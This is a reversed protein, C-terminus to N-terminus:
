KVQRTGMRILKVEHGLDYINEKGRTHGEGAECVGAM